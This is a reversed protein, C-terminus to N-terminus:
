AATTPPCGSDSRHPIKGEGALLRGARPSKQLEEMRAVGETLIPQVGAIDTSLRYCEAPDHDALRFTPAPRRDSCPLKAHLTGAYLTARACIM